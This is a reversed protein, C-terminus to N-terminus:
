APQAGKLLVIDTIREERKGFTMVHEITVDALFPPQLQKIKQILDLSVRFTTGQLGKAIGDENFPPALNAVTHIQGIEYPKGAKSVGQSGEFGVIQMKTM